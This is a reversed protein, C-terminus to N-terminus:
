EKKVNVDWMTNEICTSETVMEVAVTSRPAGSGGFEKGREGSEAANGSCDVACADCTCTAPIKM